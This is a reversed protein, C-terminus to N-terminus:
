KQGTTGEWTALAAVWPIPGVLDPDQFYPAAVVLMTPTTPKTDVKFMAGPGGLLSVDPTESSWKGRLVLGMRLLPRDVGDMPEWLLASTHEFLVDDYAVVMGRFPEFVWPDAQEKNPVIKMWTFDWGTFGVIQGLKIQFTPSVVVSWMQGGFGEGLKYRPARDPGDTRDILSGESFGILGFPSNWYQTHVAEVTIPLIDLPQFSLRAAGEAFAPSVSLRGGAGLFTDNNMVGGYRMVPVRYEYVSDYLM